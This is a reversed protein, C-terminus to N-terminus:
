GILEPITPLTGATERGAVSGGEGESERERGGAALSATESMSGPKM